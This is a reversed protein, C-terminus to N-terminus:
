AQGTYPIRPADRVVVCVSTRVTYKKCLSNEPLEPFLWVNEMSCLVTETTSEDRVKFYSRIIESVQRANDPWGNRIQQELKEMEENVVFMQRIRPLRSDSEALTLHVQEYGTCNTEETALPARSLKDALVMNKSPTYGIESNYKQLRVLMAQLRCPAKDLPM